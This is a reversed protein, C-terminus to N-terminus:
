KPLNDDLFKVSRTYLDILNRRKRPWHGEDPYEHYEHTKGLKRLIKVVERTETPPCRPDRSSATLLLPAKLEDLFHIPSRDRFLGPNKEPDGMKIRDYAKLYGRENAFETEWDFFGVASVGAGWIEPHKTLAMLCLYGGYSAGWFGIRNRNANGSRILYRAAHITDLLDGRGLDKDHMHLFKRGYGTSGRYNPEIVAFGKSALMHPLQDWADLSQMEPGGHPMVIGARRNGATPPHLLASIRVGDFSKYQVLRPKSLGTKALPRSQFRSNTTTREGRSVYFEEPRMSSGNIFTLSGDSAWKLGRSVGDRPAIVKTQSGSQTAVVCHPDRIEAYALIRGDPSWRPDSKDRRSRVLWRKKRGQLNVEGIDMSDNENSVFLLRTGDASWPAPKSGIGSSLSYEARNSHLVKKTRTKAVDVVSIHDLHNVGTAYAISTGNPSWAFEKVPFEESTLRKVRKGNLDTVHVNEIDRWRNSIFAVLRGDPSFRPSQNDTGGRTVKSTRKRNASALYVDHNEDGEFDSQFAVLDGEPSFDPTQLSQGGSLFRSLKWSNLDLVSLEWNRGRNVSCIATRDYPHLDYDQIEAASFLTSSSKSEGRSGVRVTSMLVCQRYFRKWTSEM